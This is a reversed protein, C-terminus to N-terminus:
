SPWTTATACSKRPCSPPATFLAQGLLRFFDLTVGASKVREPDGEGTLTLGFGGYMAIPDLTHSRSRFYVYFADPYAVV